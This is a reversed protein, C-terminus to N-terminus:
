PRLAVGCHPCHKPNIGSGLYRSCAPCRWNRLSFLLAGVVLALFIPAAVHPSIGFITAAVGRQYAVAAVILPALLAILVLQKRRRKSFARRIATTQADTYRM